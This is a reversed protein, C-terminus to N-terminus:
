RKKFNKANKLNLISLWFDSLFLLILIIKILIIMLILKKLDINLIGMDNGSDEYLYLINKDAYLDTFLIKMSKSTVLWHLVFNIAALCVDVARGCM